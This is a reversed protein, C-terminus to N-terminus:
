QLSDFASTWYMDWDLGQPVESNPVATGAGGGYHVFARIMGIQGAKGSRIFNMGSINHPSVRRHTGVQVIRDYKRAANVMARGEMITHGIPKEVYVNAGIEM